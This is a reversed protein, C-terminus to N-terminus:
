PLHSRPTLGCLGCDRPICMWESSSPGGSGRWGVRRCAVSSPLHSCLHASCVQGTGRRIQPCTLICASGLFCGGVQTLATLAACTCVCTPIPPLQCPPATCTLHGSSGPPSGALKLGSLHCAPVCPLIPPSLSAAGPLLLTLLGGPHPVRKPPQLPTLSSPMPSPAAQARGTEPREASNAPNALPQLSLGELLNPVSSCGLIYGQAEGWFKESRWPPPPSPPLHGQFHKKVGTDPRM